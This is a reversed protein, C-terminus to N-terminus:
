LRRMKILKRSYLADDMRLQILYIGAPLDPSDWELQYRGASQLQAPLLQQRIKGDLSILRVEIETEDNVEYNLEFRNSFPNPYIQFDGEKRDILPRIESELEEGNQALTMKAELECDEIRATFGSGAEAHFGPTLRISTGALFTVNTGTQVTGDSEISVGARYPGSSLTGGLTLSVECDICYSHSDDVTVNVECPSSTNSSGDIVFVGILRTGLDSCGFDLSNVTAQEENETEYVLRSQLDLNSTCNDSSSLILDAPLLTAQGNEDLTVTYNEVCIIEPWEGDLVQVNTQCTSSNNGADTVYLTAQVTGIDDCDFVTQDIYLSVPGCLDNSGNDVEEATLDAQGNGDLAVTVDKCIAQPAETDELTLIVTCSVTSPVGNDGVLSVVVEQIDGHAGGFLTGAEPFQGATFSGCDSTGMIEATLDPIIGSCTGAEMSVIRNQPCATIVPPLDDIVDIMTVCQSTNGSEDMVTLYAIQFGTNACDLELDLDLMYNLETSCNDSSGAGVQIALDEPIASLNVRQNNCVATPPEPETVQLTFSCQQVSGSTWTYRAVYQGLGLQLDPIDNSGNYIVQGDRDFIDYAYSLDCETEVPALQQASFWQKQQCNASVIEVTQNDPCVVGTGGQTVIRLRCEATRDEADYAIIRVNNQENGLAACSLNLNTLEYSVIGCDDIAEFDIQDLLQQPNSNEFVTLNHIGGPCNTFEPDYVDSPSYSPNISINFSCKVSQEPTFALTYTVRSIGVEFDFTTLNGNGETIMPDLGPGTVRYSLDGCSEYGSSLDAYYPDEWNDSIFYTCSNTRSVTVDTGEPCSLESVPGEVTVTFSCAQTQVDGEEDEYTALYTVVSTGLAFTDADLRFRNSESDTYLFQPFTDITNDARTVFYDWEPQCAPAGQTTFSIEPGGYSLGSKLIPECDLVEVSVPEPCVLTASPGQEIEVTFDCYDSITGNDARLTYTRVTGIDYCDLITGLSCDGGNPDCLYFSLSRNEPDTSGDDIDEAQLTMPDGSILVTTDKCVAIPAGVLDVNSEFRYTIIGNDPTRDSGNGKDKKNSLAASNVFSGGGGGGYYLSGQGGGSFGGGGGGSGGIIYRSGGGGGGYGYGGRVAWTDSSAGDGGNLGGRNAGGIGASALYGAGDNGHDGPTGGANGNCGGQGNSAAGVGGTGCTTAAGPKGHNKECLGSSYAGGGGGAVALLIWDNDVESFNLEPVGDTSTVTTNPAKYLIGTGGGGGAGSVGSTNDNGGHQGPIFRIIGGPALEGYGTGLAFSASVKAGQGGRAICLNPVKRRGGDGGKLFFTIQNIANDPDSSIDPIIFDQSKNDQDYKIEWTDGDATLVSTGQGQLAINASILLICSLFFITSFKM